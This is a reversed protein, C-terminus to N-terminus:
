DAKEPAKAGVIIPSKYLAMAMFVAGALSAAVQVKKTAPVPLSIVAALIGGAVLGATGGIFWGAVGHAIKNAKSNM